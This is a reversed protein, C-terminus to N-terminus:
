RQELRGHLHGASHLESLVTMMKQGDVGLSQLGQILDRLSTGGDVIVPKGSEQTVRIESKKVTTTEGRSLGSPQSVVPDDIVEITLESIQVLCPTLRVDRGAIITGTKENLLIRAEIVPEITLAEIEALLRTISGSDRYHSLLGVRINRPDEITCVGINRKDLLQNISEAIRRANEPSPQRLLFSLEGQENLLSPILDEVPPECIAGSPITGATPHNRTVKANTGKAEFGGIMLQGDALAYIKGDSGRLETPLLEGGRLSSADGISSVSVDLKTGHRAFPPLKASINVLAYNGAAVQDPRVQLNTRALYSVFAQRTAVTGDGTGRLGTVIGRGVLTNERIGHLDVLSDIRVQQARAFSATGAVLLASPLLTRLLDFTSAHKM